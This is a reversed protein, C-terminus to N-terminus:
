RVGAEALGLIMKQYGDMPKGYRAEFALERAAVDDLNPDHLFYVPTGDEKLTGGVRKGAADALRFAEDFSTYTTLAM